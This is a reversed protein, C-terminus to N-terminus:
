FTLQTPKKPKKGLAPPPLLGRVQLWEAPPGEWGFRSLDVRGKENFIIGEDELLQRQHAPGPGPRQSIEGQSNIIRQWPVNDPCSAMAGGVWRAGQAAYSPPLVGAPAPIMAAIQGYTSVKGSPVQRAIEWVKINFDRPDPPSSFRPSM